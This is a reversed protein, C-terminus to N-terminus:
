QLIWGVQSGYFDVKADKVVICCKGSFHHEEKQSHPYTKIKCDDNAGEQLGTGFIHLKHFSPGDTVSSIPSVILVM